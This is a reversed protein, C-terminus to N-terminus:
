KAKERLALAVEAGSDSPMRLSLPWGLEGYDICRSLLDAQEGKSATGKELCKSLQHLSWM